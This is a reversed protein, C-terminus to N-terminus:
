GTNLRHNYIGVGVLLTLLLAAIVSLTVIATIKRVKAKKAAFEERERKLRQKEANAARNRAAKSM